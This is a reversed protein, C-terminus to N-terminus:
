NEEFVRYFRGSQIPILEGENEPTSTYFFNRIVTDNVM